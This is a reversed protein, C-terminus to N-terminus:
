LNAYAGGGPTHVFLQDGAEVVTNFSGWLKIREGNVKLLYQEGTKGGTGGKLGFPKEKRHQSLMSLELKELFEFVRVAGNGGKWKGKGGSNKRIGFELLRVPYRWELIEPDTIRTNTMHSHVADAGDFGKGAGTGGCITEYYGFSSNGFLLNNMTGQSCAALEFAKFLTDTLRQSVETNGGVVAPYHQYLKLSGPNLLCVPLKISIHKLLGENLPIPANLWVRLVYLVVSNVIAATANMNGAHVISTGTFDFELKNSKKEISVSLCSGDDLFEKAKLKNRTIGRLKEALLDAAHVQISQLYKKIQAKGHAKCLIQLQKVGLRVSALAANLDAQNEAWARTPYKAATFIQEAENWYVQKEDALLSPAIIVGEEYLYKADAPMSGPKTGGVEAHHARNAVYAICEKDVYVPSILTIDPLHSGGFAPHNTIIVDGANMKRQKMVERVCVGLSGLHVPVHPANVVLYGKHDLLACSFDLREKINVSFSARQLLAGMENAIATFRNTFLELDAAHFHKETTKSRIKIKSLLGNNHEDLEFEWHADICTTSTNHLLIAPGSITAGAHLDEWHFVPIQKQKGNVLANTFQKTEARYKSSKKKKSTKLFSKNRAVVRISELELVRNAPYHGYVEQYQKKFLSKVKKIQSGDIELSTDQGQFRLFLSINSIEVEEKQFGEKYIEALAKASIRSITTSIEDQTKEFPQLVLQEAFRETAAHGIGWASLLGADYPILVRPMNLAEALACAHQGGAGGFSLLTCHQPDVGKQVSVKRLAEAMKENAIQIFAQLLQISYQGERPPTPPPNIKQFLKELAAEAKERYVPISFNEPLLRGLLLNVDTITLPGGAGYCAPGPYAGASHPGVTLKYGDFDCVSGGGAAITEIAISPSLISYDGVKSEYRYDPRLHFLSVDTSTGGMDFTILLQQASLKAKLGAGIVGGAPGSLLSDKPTYFQDSILGGASNMVKIDADPLSKKIGQLYATIIPQLYANVVTTEARPLLRIQSSLEHSSSIYQFGAKRLANQLQKEHEPNKYSNLLAIAISQVKKKKCQDIIGKIKEASLAKLIEGSASIREDVEIVATYLPDTKIIQLAFLEPRQQNGIKLLDKFGKTILLVTKAGKSELLANTGRTSGIKLELPPVKEHLATQTLLRVAMVPVEEFATLSFTTGSKINRVPSTLQIINQQVDVSSIKAEQKLDHFILTYSKFINKTCPLDIEVSITQADIQNKVKGRIAANSLLKLSNSEGQPSLAFCDTFTGGTDIWIKWAQQNKM